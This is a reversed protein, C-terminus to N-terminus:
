ATRGMAWVGCTRWIRLMWIGLAFEVLAIAMRLIIYWAPQQIPIVDMLQLIGAPIELLSALFAVPTLWFIWRWRRVVGVCLTAVFTLIAVFFLNVALPHTDTAQPDQLLTQLYISPAVLYLVVLVAVTSAFFAILARQLARQTRACGFRKTSM